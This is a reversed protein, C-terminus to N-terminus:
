AGRFHHALESTAVDTAVFDTKPYRSVDTAPRRSIGLVSSVRDEGSLADLLSTGVNGTTGVVVVRM